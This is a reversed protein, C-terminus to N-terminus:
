FIYSAFLCCRCSNEKQLIIKKGNKYTLMNVLHTEITGAIKYDCDKERLLICPYKKM